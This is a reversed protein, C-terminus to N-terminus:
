TAGPADPCEMRFHPDLLEAAMDDFTYIGKRGHIWRLAELAGRAFLDRSRAMHTLTMTEAPADLLI